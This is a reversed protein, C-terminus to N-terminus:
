RQLLDCVAVVRENEVCREREAAERTAFVRAATLDATYSKDQGPPAVFKGTETNQLVFM